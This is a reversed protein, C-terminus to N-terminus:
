SPNVFVFDTSEGIAEEYKLEHLEEGNLFDVNHLVCALYVTNILRRSKTSEEEMSHLSAALETAGFGDAKVMMEPQM